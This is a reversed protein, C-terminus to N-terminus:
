GRGQEEACISCRGPGSGPHNPHQSTDLRRWSFRGRLHGPLPGAPTLGEPETGQGSRWWWAAWLDIGAERYEASAYWRTDLDGETRIRIGYRMTRERPHHRHYAEVDSGESTRASGRCRGAGCYPCSDTPEDKTFLIVLPWEGLDWGSLGWSAEAEWGENHEVWSIYDYGDGGTPDFGAETAIPQPGDIGTVYHPGPGSQVTSPHPDNSAM